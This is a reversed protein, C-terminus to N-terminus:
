CSSRSIVYSLKVTYLTSFCVCPSPSPSPLARAIFAAGGRIPLLGLARRSTFRPLTPPLTLHVSIRLLARASVYGCAPSQVACRTRIYSPVLACCSTGDTAHLATTTRFGIRARTEVTPCHDAARYASDTGSRSLPTPLAARPAVGETWGGSPFPFVICCERWCRASRKM